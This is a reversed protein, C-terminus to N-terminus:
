QSLTRTGPIPEETIDEFCAVTSHDNTTRCMCPRSGAFNFVTQLVALNPDPDIKGRQHKSQVTKEYGLPSVLELRFRDNVGSPNGSAAGICGPLQELVKGNARDQLLCRFLWTSSILAPLATSFSPTSIAPRLM